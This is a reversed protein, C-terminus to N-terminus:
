KESQRAIWDCFPGIELYTRGGRKVTPLPDAHGPSANNRLTKVTVGLYKAGSELRIREGFIQAGSQGIWTELNQRELGASDDECSAGCHPCIKM